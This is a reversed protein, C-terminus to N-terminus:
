HAYCGSEVYYKWIEFSMFTFIIVILKNPGWIYFLRLLSWKHIYIIGIPIGLKVETKLNEVYTCMLDWKYINLQKLM